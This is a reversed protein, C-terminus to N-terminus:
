SIFNLFLAACADATGVGCPRKAPGVRSRVALAVFRTSEFGSDPYM